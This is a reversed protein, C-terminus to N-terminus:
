KFILVAVSTLLSAVSVWFSASLATNGNVTTQRKKVGNPEVYVVDNQQLFYGPSEIMQKGKTLDIRYSKLEGDEQRMVLINQRQGQIDLDGALALADVVTIHDRNLDYRGPNKVEGMVNIGVNLFEVTVVPDKILNRGMLEGKIFGAVESRTMGAIHLKGIVPFDIDGEPNVTYNSMNENSSSYNRIQVGEGNVSQSQGVRSTSIGLNFLEALAPDKSKVVISLKDEPKVKIQTPQSALKIIETDIDQFYAVGKPSACSSVAIALGAIVAIHLLSRKLKFM